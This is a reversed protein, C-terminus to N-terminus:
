GLAASNKPPLAAQVASRLAAIQPGSSPCQLATEQEVCDEYSDYYIDLRPRGQVNYGKCRISIEQECTPLAFAPQVSLMLATTVFATNIAVGLIVKKM